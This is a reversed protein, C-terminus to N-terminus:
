QKSASLHVRPAAADGTLRLLEDIAGDAGAAAAAGALQAQLLPSWKDTLVARLHPLTALGAVYLMRVLAMMFESPPASRDSRAADCLHRLPDCHEELRATHAALLVAADSLVVCPPSLAWVGAVNLTKSPPCYAQLMRQTTTSHVAPGEPLLSVLLLAAGEVGLDHAIPLAEAAAEVRARAADAIYYEPL